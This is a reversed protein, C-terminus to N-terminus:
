KGMKARIYSYMLEGCLTGLAGFIIIDMLKGGGEERIQKLSSLAYPPPISALWM